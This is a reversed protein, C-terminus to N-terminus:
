IYCFSLTDVFRQPCKWKNKNGKPVNKLDDSWAAIGRIKYCGGHCDSGTQSLVPWTTLECFLFVFCVFFGFLAVHPYSSAYSSFFGLMKVHEQLPVATHRHWLWGCGFVEHPPNLKSKLCFFTLCGYKLSKVGVRENQSISPFNSLMIARRRSYIDDTSM